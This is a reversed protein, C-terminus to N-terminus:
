RASQYREDPDKALSKAVIRRLAAPVNPGFTEMPEPENHIVRYLTDYVSAMSRASARLPRTCFAASRFFIPVTILLERGALRVAASM